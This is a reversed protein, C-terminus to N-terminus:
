GGAGRLRRYAEDGQAQYASWLRESADCRGSDINRCQPCESTHTVYRSWAEQLPSLRAM